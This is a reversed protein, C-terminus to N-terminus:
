EAKKSVVENLIWVPKAVNTLENMVVEQRVDLVYRYNPEYTFGQINGNLPTYNKQYTQRYQLCESEVMTGNSAQLECVAKLPAIEIKFSPISVVKVDMAEGEVVMTRENNMGMTSCGSLVFTTMLAAIALKKM